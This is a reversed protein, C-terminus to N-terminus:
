KVWYGRQYHLHVGSEATVKIRHLGPGTNSSSYTILWQRKLLDNLEKFYGDFTVFSFGSFFAEGGTEDSIRLLSGQGFNAAELNLRTLGISPAYFSYVAVGLRQTERIARDLDISQTPSADSLGHSLDLGDSILLMLRRGAPQSDYHRLAEIVEVYPNYPASGEDSKIIRLADSAQRRDTTFDRTVRLSGVTLYGIMVRSGEPLSLIFKRIGKIENDVQSILNDQILIAIVPSAESANKVSVIRQPRDDERVAFDDPEIKQAAARMQENHPHATVLISVERGGDKSNVIQARSSRMLSVPSTVLGLLAFFTAIRHGM